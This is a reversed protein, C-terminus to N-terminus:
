SVRFSFLLSISPNLVFDQSNIETLAIRHLTVSVGISEYLYRAVKRHLDTFPLSLSFFLAIRFPVEHPRVHKVYHFKLPINIDWIACLNADFPSKLNLNIEM